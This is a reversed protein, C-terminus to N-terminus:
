LLTIVIHNKWKIYTMFQLCIILSSHIFANAPPTSHVTPQHVSWNPQSCGHCLSTVYALLPVCTTGQLPLVQDQLHSPNTKSACPCSAWARSGLRSEPLFFEPSPTLFDQSQRESAPRGCLWRVQPQWWAPSQFFAISDRATRKKKKLQPLIWM